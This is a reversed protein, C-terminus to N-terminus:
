NKLCLKLAVRSWALHKCDNPDNGKQICVMRASLFTDMTDHPVKHDMIFLYCDYLCKTFADLAFRWCSYPFSDIGVGSDLLSDLLLGFHDFSVEYTLDDLWVCIFNVLALKALDLRVPKERMIPGWYKLLAHACCEASTCVVGDEDVIQLTSISRRKSAWLSMWASLKSRRSDAHDDEKVCPTNDMLAKCSKNHHLRAILKGLDDCLVMDLSRDFFKELYPYSKL